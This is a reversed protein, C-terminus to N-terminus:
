DRPEKKASDLNYTDSLMNLYRVYSRDDIHKSYVEKSPVFWLEIQKNSDEEANYYPIDTIKLKDSYKNESHIDKKDKLINIVNELDFEKNTLQQMYNIHVPLPVIEFDLDFLYYNHYNFLFYKYNDKNESYEKYNFYKVYDTIHGKGSYLEKYDSNSMMVFYCHQKEGNFDFGIGNKNESKLINEFNELISVSYVEYSDKEETKGNETTKTHTDLIILKENIKEYSYSIEKEIIKKYKIDTFKM